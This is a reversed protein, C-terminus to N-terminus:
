KPVEKIKKTKGVDQMSSKQMCVIVENGKYQFLLLKILNDVLPKLDESFLQVNFGLEKLEKYDIIYEHSPYGYIIKEIINRRKQEDWNSYRRLLREAYEAGVSLARNYEGLKESNLQRFLPETTLSVFKTAYELADGPEMGSRAIIMKVTIDLTELSFKQLQELTKFPNLASTYDRKGGKGLELIQTDLPGLEALESLMLSDAGLCLLTAASKAYLPIIAHLHDCHLRLFELIQYAGHIDGGGSHIFLDITKQHTDGIEKKLDLLHNRRIPDQPLLLAAVTSARKKGFEQLIGKVDTKDTM